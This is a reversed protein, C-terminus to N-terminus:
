AIGENSAYSMPHRSAIDEGEHHTRLIQCVLQARVSSLAVSRM